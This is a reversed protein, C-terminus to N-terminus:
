KFKDEIYVENSRKDIEKEVFQQTVNNSKQQLEEKIMLPTKMLDGYYGELEGDDYDIGRYDQRTEDMFWSIYQEGSIATNVDKTTSRPITVGEKYKARYEKDKQIEM